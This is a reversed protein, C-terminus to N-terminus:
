KSGQPQRLCLILRYRCALWHKADEQSEFAFWFVNKKNQSKCISLKAQSQANNSSLSPLPDFTVWPCYREQRGLSIAIAEPEKPNTCSLILVKKWTVWKKRLSSHSLSDAGRFPRWPSLAVFACKKQGHCAFFIRQNQWRVVKDTADEDTLLSNWMKLGLGWLHQHPPSCPPSDRYEFTQRLSQQSRVTM